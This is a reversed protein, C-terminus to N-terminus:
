SASSTAWRLSDGRGRAPLVGKRFISGFPHICRPDEATLQLHRDATVGLTSETPGM